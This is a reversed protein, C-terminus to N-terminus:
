GRGSVDARRIRTSLNGGGRSGSERRHGVSIGRNVNSRSRHSNRNTSTKIHTTAVHWRPAPSSTQAAAETITIRTNLYTTTSKSVAPLSAPRSSGAWALPVM